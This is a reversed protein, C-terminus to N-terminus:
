AAAPLNLDLMGPVSGCEGVISPLATGPWGKSGVAGDTDASM